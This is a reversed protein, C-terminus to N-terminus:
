PHDKSDRRPALRTAPDAALGLRSRLVAITEALSREDDTAFLPTEGAINRRWLARLVAGPGLTVILGARSRVTALSRAWEVPRVLQEALLAPIEDPATVIEGTRNAVFLPRGAVGASVAAAASVAVGAAASVAAHWEGLAGAMAPSHWAGTTPLRTAISPASALAARVAAEDGSLVAEDPANRAAFCLTGARRGAALVAEFVEQESTTVAVMGGPFQDAERAMLRGRLAALEIADEARVGGALSWAALEGLSHGAIVAPVVGAKMVAEGAVLTVATLMPQLVETRDLLSPRELIRQLPLGAARAALECWARGHGSRAVSRLTVDVRKAGQGPALFAVPTM